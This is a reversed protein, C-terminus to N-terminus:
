QVKEKINVDFKDVSNKVIMEGILGISIMQVGVIILAIGFLALPRNSLYTNGIIWEYVLYSNIILGALTFITGFTGFFHLPRKFYRTTFLVTLLDLYGKVFRSVGFKTKGYRRPHHKVPIESVKFGEWNALAPLYRHMEGYVYLSKACERRYAKLGCNFDHLKLGSSLSTFFNFIKSTFKKIFPDHRKKKWGSVLDYGEKLKNILNSIETPDDQLDADMTIIIKGRAAQFGKHLAASKGYNKRFRIGKFNRTKGNIGKIVQWSNDNSGDDIFIVEWRRGVLKKLETELQMALEPLSEAEDLLPIVVSILIGKSQNFKQRKKPEQSKDSSQSKSSQTNPEQKKQQTLAKSERRDYNPRRRYYKKNSNASDNTRSKDNKEKQESHENSM